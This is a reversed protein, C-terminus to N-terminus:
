LQFTLISNAGYNLDNNVGFKIFLYMGGPCKTLVFFCQYLYIFSNDAM